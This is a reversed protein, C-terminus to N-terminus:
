RALGACGIVLVDAGHQERLRRGVDIRFLPGPRQLLRHCLSGDIARTVSDTSNPNIVLIRDPM